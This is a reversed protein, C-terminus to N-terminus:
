FLSRKSSSDEGLLSKQREAWAWRWDDRDPFDAQLREIAKMASAARGANTEALVFARHSQFIDQLAGACKRLVRWVSDNRAAGAHDAIGAASAIRYAALAASYARWANGPAVEAQSMWHEAEKVLAAADSGEGSVDGRAIRCIGDDAYGSLRFSELVTRQAPSGGSRPSWAIWAIATDGSLYFRATAWQAGARAGDLVAYPVETVSNRVAQIREEGQATRIRRLTWVAGRLPEIREALRRVASEAENELHWWRVNEQSFRSVALGERDDRSSLVLAGELARVRWSAPQSISFFVHDRVQGVVSGETRAGKPAQMWMMAALFVLVGAVIMKVPRGSAQRRISREVAEVSLFDTGPEDEEQDADPEIAHTAQTERAAGPRDAYETAETWPGTDTGRPAEAALNSPRTGDALEDPVYTEDLRGQDPLADERAEAADTPPLGGTEEVTAAYPQIVDEAPNEELSVRVDGLWIEAACDLEVERGDDIKHGNLAVSKSARPDQAVVVKGARVEVVCHYRSVKGSELCVDCDRSRGILCRGGERLTVTNRQGGSEQVMLTWGRERGVSALAATEDAM